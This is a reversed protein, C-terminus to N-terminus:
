GEKGAAAAGAAAAGAAATAAEPPAAAPATAEPVPALRPPIKPIVVVFGDPLVSEVDRTGYLRDDFMALIMVVVLALVVSGAAGVLFVKSRGGAVPRLPKFPQDAVVLRGGQGAATLTAALQAQFQKGELQSQRERAESVERNLRTWETDIAVISTPARVTEARPANRSRLAGIQSRVASLARRLAATRAGASDDVQIAPQEGAAPPVYAAIAAAARKEAAEAMAVRRLAQKVDPHENTLHAQKEALDRQATQLEALARTQAGLLQPDVAKEHRGVVRPGGAAAISEELQAAQLELAAVGGNDAGARDRDAARILGGAAAAGGAEAALQPHKTLFGALTEEKQKLDADAQERETDLFKKTQQAEENRRKSDEDIVSGILRELVSKALDRSEGDYSVRFTYGERNSVTVHRRMEDITEVAGKKDLQRRYLQMDKILSELRQRSLFMDQLRAAVARPSEADHGLAGAQVGHEFLIMAESRYLRTTSFSLAFTAGLGVVFAIVGAWKVRLMRPALSALM